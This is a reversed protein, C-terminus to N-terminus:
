NGLDWRPQRTQNETAARATADKVTDRDIAAPMEPKLLVGSNFYNDTFHTWDADHMLGIWFERNEFAECFGIPLDYAVIRRMFEMHEPLTSHDPPEPKHRRFRDRAEEASELTRIPRDGSYIDQGRNQYSPEYISEFYPFEPKFYRGTDPDIEGMARVDDDTVAKDFKATEEPTLPNAVAEANVTVMQDPHPVTWLKMANFFPGRNGDWFPKTNNPDWHSGYKMDPLTGFRKIGPADGCPTLRALMRQKVTDGLEALLDDPLGQWGISELTTLGMVRDHPSFYVYIRGHNDRESVAPTIESFPRWRKGNRGRGVRQQVLLREDLLRREAKIRNAINRFTQVRAAESPRADSWTAGDALKDDLAYPSNMLFLADPARTKCLASAALAIM